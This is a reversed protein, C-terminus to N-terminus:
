TPLHMPRPELYKCIKRVRHKTLQVESRGDDSVHWILNSAHYMLCALRLCPPKPKNCQACLSRTTRVCLVFFQKAAPAAISWIM